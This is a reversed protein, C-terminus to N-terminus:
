IRQGNKLQIKTANYSNKFYIKSILRKDSVYNVSVKEWEILKREMKNTTERPTEVGMRKFYM